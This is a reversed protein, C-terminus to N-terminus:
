FVSVFKTISLNQACMELAKNNRIQPPLCHNENTPPKPSFNKHVLFAYKPIFKDMFSNGTASYVTLQSM